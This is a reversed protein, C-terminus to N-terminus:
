KRPCWKGRSGPGGTGRAAGRPRRGASYHGTGVGEEEGVLADVAGDHLSQRPATPVDLVRGLDEALPGVVRMEELVGRRPPSDEDGRVLVM